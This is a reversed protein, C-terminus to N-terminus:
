RRKKKWKSYLARAWAGADTSDEGGEGGERWELKILLRRRGVRVCLGDKERGLM